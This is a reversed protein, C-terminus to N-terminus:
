YRMETRRKATQVLGMLREKKAQLRIFKEYADGAKSELRAAAASKGAAMATSVQRNVEMDARVIEEDLDELLVLIKAAGDLWQGPSIPLRNEIADKFWSLITDLTTKESM